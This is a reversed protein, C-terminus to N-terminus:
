KRTAAQHAPRDRARDGQHGCAPRGFVRLDFQLQLQRGGPTATLNIRALASDIRVPHAPPSSKTKKPVAATEKARPAQVTPERDGTCSRWSASLMRLTM